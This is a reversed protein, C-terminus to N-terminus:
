SNCHIIMDHYFAIYQLCYTTKSVKIGAGLSRLGLTYEEQHINYEFTFSSTDGARLVHHSHSANRFITRCFGYVTYDITAPPCPVFTSGWYCRNIVAEDSVEGSPKFTKVSSANFSYDM